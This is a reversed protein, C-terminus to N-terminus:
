VHNEVGQCYDCECMPYFHTPIPNNIGMITNDRKHLTAVIGGGKFLVYYHNEHIEDFQIRVGCNEIAGDNIRWIKM